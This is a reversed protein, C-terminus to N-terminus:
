HRNLFNIKKMSLGRRNVADFGAVGSEAVTPVTPHQKPRANSAVAIPRIHGSRIGPDMFMAVNIAIPGASAASM